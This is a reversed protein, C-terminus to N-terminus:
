HQFSLLAEGKYMFIMHGLGVGRAYTQVVPYKSIPHYRSLAAALEDYTYCYEAKLLPTQIERLMGAVYVPDRCKLICPYTLERANQEAERRTLPQWSHPM